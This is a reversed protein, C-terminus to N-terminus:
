NTCNQKDPNPKTFYGRLLEEGQIDLISVEKTLNHVLVQQDSIAIKDGILLRSNCLEDNWAIAGISVNDLVYTEDMNVEGSYYPTKMQPRLIQQLKMPDFGKLYALRVGAGPDRASDIWIEHHKYKNWIDLLKIYAYGYNNAREYKFLIFYSVYFTALSYILLGLVMFRGIIKQTMSRVIYHTGISIALCLSWMYVLARLTYFPDSTLAAPIPGIVMLFLVLQNFQERIGKLMVSVGLLYPIIMWFYFVSLGPMSRSLQPDIQYFLNNPSWYGLYHTIFERTIYVPRGIAKGSWFGSQQYTTKSMYGVQDFRRAFAGSKLLFIHPLQFLVFVASVIILLKINTNRFLEYVLLVGLLIVATVRESYYANTSLGLFVALLLLRLKKHKKISLYATLGCVFLFLGLNAEVALRSFLISWPAIAVVLSCVIAMTYKKRGDKVSAQVLLYTLMPLLSGVLASVFRVTFIKNGFVWTPLITLYTYVPPQYSGFSRFLLPFKEGYRDKGTMILSFANYGQSAEDLNFGSPVNGLQYFRLGFSLCFIFFLLVLQNKKM